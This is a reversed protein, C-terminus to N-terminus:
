KQGPLAIATRAVCGSGSPRTTAGPRDGVVARAAGRADPEIQVARRELGLDHAIMEVLVDRVVPPPPRRRRAAARQRDARAEAVAAELVPQDVVQLDEVDRQGGRLDGPSAAVARRGGHANACKRPGAADATMTGRTASSCCSRTSSFASTASTGSIM